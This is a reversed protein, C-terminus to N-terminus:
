PELLIVTINDHGGARNAKSVLADVLAQGYLSYNKVMATLESDDIMSTLGDTCLLIRSGVAYQFSGTEVRLTFSTGVARTLMNRQPHNHAEESTIAGSKVLEWVLSHDNTLQSLSEDCFYYLRSDGVHGWYIHSDQLIVATVTTGMGACEAVAQAKTYILRNAELIAQELLQCPHIDSRNGLCHKTITSVAVESAIEGAAHGGMGDAVVFLNSEVAYNDENTARVMGVDTKVYAQM